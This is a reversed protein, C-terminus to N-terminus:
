ITNDAIFEEVTQDGIKVELKSPDYKKKTSDPEVPNNRPIGYFKGVHDLEEGSKAMLFGHRTPDTIECDRILRTRYADDTEPEQDDDLKWEGTIEVTAPMTAPTWSFSHDRWTAKTVRRNTDWLFGANVANQMARTVSDKIGSITVDSFVPADDEYSRLQEYISPKKEEPVTSRFSWPPEAPDDVRLPLGPMEDFDRATETFDIEVGYEDKIRAFVTDLPTTDRTQIHLQVDNAIFESVLSDRPEGCRIPPLKGAISIEVGMGGTSAVGRRIRSLAQKGLPVTVAIDMDYHPTVEVRITATGCIARWRTKCKTELIM